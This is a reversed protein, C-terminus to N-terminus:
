CFPSSLDGPRGARLPGHRQDASARSIPEVPLRQVKSRPAYRSIRATGTDIVYRVGPVTLSSEAVNTALVIRRYDFSQFVRNQEAASLRAYLPLIQTRRSGDGPLREARLRKATDRIDRETPLFVLIHGSDIAALEHM